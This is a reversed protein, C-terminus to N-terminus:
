KCSPQVKGLRLSTTTMQSLSTVPPSKRTEQMGIVSLAQM